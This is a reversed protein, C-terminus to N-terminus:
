GADAALQESLLRAAPVLTMVLRRETSPDLDETRVVLSMSALIAANASSVPASLGVLGQDVEGRTVCYGRRRIETLEAKLGKLDIEPAAGAGQLLKGLRRAPLQALIIKSTAGRLLPMPHGREYSTPIRGIHSSSEAVCIVDAGYLRAIVAAAPCAAAKLLDDLYPAGLRIFPDTLRVRRDFEIFLAGLRYHADSSADLFGQAVLERVLRYITSAPIGLTEAMAAITWGSRRGDFLRLIRVYRDLGGM